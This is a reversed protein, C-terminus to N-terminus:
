SQHVKELSFIEVDVGGSAHALPPESPRSFGLTTILSESIAHLEAGQVPYPDHHVQGRYLRGHRTTYLWYREILFHDLTGLVAPAPTGVPTARVATVAPTPGPWLRESAYSLMGDPATDLRMRARHYPLGFLARATLVALSHAAELSFFWVGPDRGAVHVYTRLNTEHFARLGPIAPLGAARVGKMTFLVVGLYARGKFLDLELGTPLLPRLQEPPLTWHLFLLSRWSQHMLARRAPRRSPSLRDISLEPVGPAPSPM